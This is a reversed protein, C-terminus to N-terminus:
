SNPHTVRHFEEISSTQLDTIRCNLYDKLLNIEENISAATRGNSSNLDQEFSTILDLLQDMDDINCQKSHSSM